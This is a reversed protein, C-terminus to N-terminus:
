ETLRDLREVLANIMEQQTSIVSKLAVVEKALEVVSVMAANGYAVTLTQAEDSSTCIANPLIERLSQASVGVQTVGEEDIRDYIGHKVQALKAVYDVPLDRWNKKLREDSYATVNGTVTWNTTGFDLRAGWGGVNTLFGVGSSDGYMYGRLVSVTYMPISAASGAAGLTVVGTFSGTTASVTGGSQNTATTATSANGVFGSAATVVGTFTPTNIPAYVVNDLTYTDAATKRVAGVPAGTM